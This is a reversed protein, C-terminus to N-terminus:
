SRWCPREKGISRSPVIRLAAARTWGLHESTREICQAFCRRENVLARPACLFYLPQGGTETTKGHGDVAPPPSDQFISPGASPRRRQGSTAPGTRRPVGATRDAGVQGSWKLSRGVREFPM